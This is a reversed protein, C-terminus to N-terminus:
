GAPMTGNMDDAIPKGAVVAQIANRLYEKREAGELEDKPDNDLSGKFRLKRDKDLVFMHPTKLGGLRDTLKQDSDLIVNWHYGNLELYDNVHEATDPHNSAIVVLRAGTEGVVEQMREDYIGKCMPCRPSWAVMVIPANESKMVWDVVNSLTKLGALKEETPVLGFHKGVRGAFDLALSTDLAGDEQLGPLDAVATELTVAEGDNEDSALDLVVREAEARDIDLDALTLFGGDATPGAVDYVVEGFACPATKPADKAIGVSALLAVAVAAALVPFTRM